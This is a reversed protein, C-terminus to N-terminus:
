RSGLEDAALMGNRVRVPRRLPYPFSLLREKAAIVLREAKGPPSAIPRHSAHFADYFHPDDLATGAAIRKAEYDQYAQQFSRGEALEDLYRPRLADRDAANLQKEIVSQRRRCHEILGKRLTADASFKEALDITREYACWAIYRQGVRLMTEGLALAFHPNAGGGLRWMGVIGLVPEDFAVPEKHSTAVKEAWDKEAGVKRIFGRLSQRNEGVKEPEALMAATFRRGRHTWGAVWTRMHAPDIAEDLRNGLLDYRLLLAPDDLVALLFEVTVVQWAERGFHAQPNVEIARRLFDLGERIRVRAAADGKRARPFNGHILFTGLNAYTTYLDRGRLGQAQQQHLKDRLLRVAEDDQGLHDLGSGLDDILGFYRESFSEGSEGPKKKAKLQALEARARRNREEYYARGHRPFREHIVDHAMALRLSVGGRYKPVHYPMGLTMERPASRHSLAPVVGLLGVIIGVIAGVFAALVILVLGIFKQAKGTM